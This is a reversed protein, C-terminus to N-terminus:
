STLEATVIFTKGASASGVVCTWADKRAAMSSNRESPRPPGSSSVMIPRSSRSSAPVQCVGAALIAAFARANEADLLM